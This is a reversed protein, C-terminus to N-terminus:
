VGKKSSDLLADVETRKFYLRGRWKRAPLQGRCVMVRLAGVTKRLYRATEASTMWVLNEFFMSAEISADLVSSKMDCEM